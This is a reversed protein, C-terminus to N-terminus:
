VALSASLLLLSPGARSLGAWVRSGHATSDYFKRQRPVIYIYDPVPVRVYMDTCAHIDIDEDIHLILKLVSRLLVIQLLTEDPVRM